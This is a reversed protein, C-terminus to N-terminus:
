MVTFVADYVFITSEKMLSLFIAVATLFLKMNSDTVQLQWPGAEGCLKLLGEFTTPEGDSSSGSTSKLECESGALSSSRVPTGDHSQLTDVSPNSRISVTENEKGLSSLSSKDAYLDPKGKM